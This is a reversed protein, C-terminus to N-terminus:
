YTSKFIFYASKFIVDPIFGLGGGGGRVRGGIFTLGMTRDAGGGIEIPYSRSNHIM